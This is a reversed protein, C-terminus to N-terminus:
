KQRGDLYAALAEALTALSGPEDRLHVALARITEDALKRYEEDGTKQWLRVLVMAAQSNGCPQVGDYQDKIRVFLKEHDGATYYFGGGDPDRYHKVMVAALAKAETLWKADGTAEHVVLLGHILDAYDDLYAAGKAKGGSYVRSLRGDKGRLEKLVFEAANVARAVITKDGLVQGGKALGAVTLGNWGTLVNTDVAPRQPRKARAALLAANVKALRDDNGKAPRLKVALVHYKGEFAPRGDAGYTAKALALDAADPLAAALEGSSWVYFRGEEEGTDADLAATFAGGPATLERDLFAATERVVRAFLPDKTEAYARAYVELLQGNDSLMKEFHPVLWARDTSYRHFGGGLQDYIGGRAMMELATRVLGALEKAGTRAAEAQLLRLGPPRPFKAGRFLPPAGFGGYVPDATDKWYEVAGAVLDRDLKVLAAGRERVALARRTKDALEDAARRLDDPSDKQAAILGKLIGKLGRQTHGDTTKDDPPFYSGGGIPKGDATLFVTMPWGGRTGSAHLATLYVHDVDPREERDVKICVFHKNLLRAVEADAFTEREMVHCWHCSDFGSSLFVLKGEKKAKAFAEDGWPFWDVPSRAHRLLYPSSEKALRNAPPDAAMLGASSVILCFAVLSCLMSLQTM